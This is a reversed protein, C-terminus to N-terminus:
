KEQSESLAMSEASMMVAEGIWLSELAELESPKRRLLGSLKSTITGLAAGSLQGVIPVGTSLGAFKALGSLTRAIGAYDEDTSTEGLQVSVSDVFHMAKSRDYTITAQSTALLRGRFIMAKTRLEVRLSISMSDGRVRRELDMLWLSFDEGVETAKAWSSEEITTLVGAKVNQLKNKQAIPTKVDFQLQAESGSPLFLLSLATVSLVIQALEVCVTRLHHM